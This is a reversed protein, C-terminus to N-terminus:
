PRTASRSHHPRTGRLHDLLDTLAQLATQPGLTATAFPAVAAMANYNRALVVLDPFTVTGSYDFDGAAWDAGTKGYHRALAVLDLFDVTGNEDADGKLGYKLLITNPPQGTVIGDASDTDAIGFHPNGAADSSTIGNGTWAGNAYGGRLYAQIQALPDAGSYAIRVSGDGLDLKGAPDVTLGTVSLLHSNSTPTHPLTVAQNAGISLAGTTFGGNLILQVPLPNGNSPDLVLTDTLGGGNITIPKAIMALQTPTGTAPVNLWVDDDVGDADRRLTITNTLGAVGNIVNSIPINPGVTLKITASNNLESVELIEHLRNVIVLLTYNGLSQSTDIPLNIAVQGLAPVQPVRMSAVPFMAGSAPVAFAEVLVNGADDIGINGITASLSLPDGQRPTPTSLMLGSVTLDPLGHIVLETQGSNNSLNSDLADVSPDIFARYVNTGALGNVLFTLTMSQGPNLLPITQSGGSVFPAGNRSSQLDIPVNAIPATGLNTVPVFVKVNSVGSANLLTAGVHVPGAGSFGFIAPDAHFSIRYEADNNGRAADPIVDGSDAIATYVYDGATAPLTVPFSLMVDQGAGLSAVHQTMPAGPPIQPFLPDGSQLTVDFAGVAVNSLNKVDATLMISQGVKPNAASPALSVVALDPLGDLMASSVLGPVSAPAPSLFVQVSYTQQGASIPFAQSYQFTDGPALTIQRSNIMTGGNPLGVFSDVTAQAPALGNNLITAFGTISSGAVANDQFPFHLGNSFVLNPAEAVSSSGVGSALPVGVPTQAATAGVAPQAAGAAVRDHYLVQYNGNTDVAVSPSLTLDTTSTLPTPATWPLTPNTMSRSLTSEFVGNTVGDGQQWYAVLSGDPANTASLHSFNENHAIQEAFTNGSPNSPDLGLDYLVSDVSRDAHLVRYSFLVDMRGLKDGGLAVGGFSGGAQLGSISFPTPASWATGNYQSYMLENGSATDRIWVIFMRGSPDVYAAPKDDSVGDPTTVAMPASWTHTAPNWIAADIDQTSRSYNGNSDMPTSNTNHVWAVLGHGSTNFAVSPSSDLLSDNTISQEPGWSSGNFYRYRLDTDDLKQNLTLGATSGPVNTAEYVVVAPNPIGFPTPPLDHTLVLAPDSVDEPSSLVTLPSWTSGFRQSFALNALPQGPTTSVNEVQNSMAAGTAPNVVIQPHPDILYDGVPSSGTKVVPSVPTIAALVGAPHLLAPLIKKLGSQTPPDDTYIGQKINDLLPIPQSWNYDWIDGLLWVDAELHIGLTATVKVALDNFLQDFPVVKAPDNNDLGVLVDVTLSVTGSLSAVDFGLVDVDGEVTASAGLSPDVYTPSMIGLRNPATNPDMLVHPDIGVKVGASLGANLGFKIGADISAVGPLGFSFLKIEPTELNLLPQNQLQVSIAAATADLTHSDATLEAHIKLHDTPQANGNFTQDFFTTDLAKLLIHGTLPLSVPATPDLGATGMASVGVLFENDKDGVVPVSFGLIQSVTQHYDVFDHQFSLDYQEANPDWTVSTYFQPKPVVDLKQVHDGSTLGYADIARYHIENPNSQTTPNLFGFSLGMDDVHSSQYNGGTATFGGQVVEGSIITQYLDPGTSPNISSDGDTSTVLVDDTIGFVGSLYRGWTDGSEANLSADKLAIAVVPVAPDVSSLAVSQSNNNFNIEQFAHDYNATFSVTDSPADPHWDTFYTITGFPGIAALNLISYNNPPPYNYNSFALTAHSSPAVAYGQDRVTIAVRTQGNNALLQIPQAVLDPNGSQPISFMPGILADQGLRDRNFGIFYQDGPVPTDGSHITVTTVPQGGHGFNTYYDILGTGGLQTYSSGSKKFITILGQGDIFTVPPPYLGSLDVSLDSQVGGPVDVEYFDTGFFPNDNVTRLPATDNVASNPDLTIKKADYAPVSFNISARGPNDSPVSGVLRLYYFGPTLFDSFSLDGAGSNFDLLGAHFSPFEGSIGGGGPGYLAYSANNVNQMALGFQAVGSSGVYFVVKDLTGSSGPDFFDELSYTGDPAPTARTYPEVPTFGQGTTPNTLYDFDPPPNPASSTSVPASINLLTDNGSGLYVHLFYLSSADFGTLQFSVQNTTPASLTYMFGRSANYVDVNATDNGPGNYNTVTLTPQGSLGHPTTVRVLDNSDVPENAGKGTEPDIGLGVDAPGFPDLTGPGVFTTPVAEAHIRYHGQTGQENKVSVYLTPQGNVLGPSYDTQNPDDTFADDLIHYNNVVVRADVTSRDAPYYDFSPPPETPLEVYSDISGNTYHARYIKIDTNVTPDLDQTWVQFPARPFAPLTFSYLQITPQSSTFNGDVSSNFPINVPTGVTTASLTTETALYPNPDTTPADLELSYIGDGLPQNAVPEVLFRITKGAHVILSFLTQPSLPQGPQTTYAAILNNADDLVSIKVALPGGVTAPTFTLTPAANINFPLVTAWLDRQAPQQLVVDRIRLKSVFPPQAMQPPPPPPPDPVIAVGVGQPATGAFSLQVTGGGTLNLPVAAIAYLTSGLLNGTLTTPGSIPPAVHDDLRLVGADSVYRLLVPESGVTSSATLTQSGGPSIEYFQAGLLQGFPPAAASTTFGGSKLDVTQTPLQGLSLQRPVDLAAYSMTMTGSGFSGKAYVDIPATAKALDVVLTAAQGGPASRVTQPLGTAVAILEPQISSGAGDPTLQVVLYDAGAPPTLRFFSGGVNPGVPLGTQQGIANTVAIPTPTYQQQVDLTVLGGYSNHDDGARVIFEQGATATVTVTATGPSTLSSVSLLTQGTADYISLVPSSTDTKLSLDLPGAAAARVKLVTAGTFLQNASQDASGPSVPVPELDAGAPPAITAPGLLTSTSLDVKYPEAPSNFELPSVALVYKADTDDGGGPPAATLSVTAGSGSTIQQWQATPSDQRYLAGFFQDDPGLKNIAVTASQGVNTLDIPFYNVDAPGAFTDPPTVAQFDANGTAPDIKITSNVRQQATDVTLTFVQSSTELLSYNDSYVGLVYPRESQLAISMKQGFGPQNADAIKLLNGDSDFLALGTDVGVSDPDPTTTFTTTTVGPAADVVSFRYLQHGVVRHGVTTAEAVTSAGPPFLTQPATTPDIHSPISGTLLPSLLTRRELEEVVRARASQLRRGAHMRALRRTEEPHGFGGTKTSPIM